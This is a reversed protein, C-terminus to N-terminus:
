GKGSVITKKRRQQAWESVMGVASATQSVFLLSALILAQPSRIQTFPYRLLRLYYRTDPTFLQWGDRLRVQQLRFAGCGYNFHQRWFTRWTLTHAHYVMAEPAYIMRYGHHLWRGCLERDESATTGFTTDFKGLAHFRDTPLALNNSTFFRARNPDANHYIYGVEVILQSATAYLNDSLANLTRGGVIVPDPATAFRAALTQLWEPAPACDDDTFALIQGKAQAAGTNRAASPGTNSQQLLCIDLQNHFPAVVAEPLVASGDDVVIVEFCDRRYNLRTLATLCTALERPRNYTPIIISFSPQAHQM